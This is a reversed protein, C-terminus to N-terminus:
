IYLKYVGENGRRNGIIKCNLTQRFASRPRLARLAGGADCGVRQRRHNQNKEGPVWVHNSRASYTYALACRSLPDGRTALRPVLGIVRPASGPSCHHLSRFKKQLFSLVGCPPGMKAAVHLPTMDSHDRAEMNAGEECLYQVVPLYGNCLISLLPLFSSPFLFSLSLSLSFIRKIKKASFPSPRGANEDGHGECYGSRGRPM